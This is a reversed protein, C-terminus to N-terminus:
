PAVAIRADLWDVATRLEGSSLPHPEAPLVQVKELTVPVEEGRLALLIASVPLGHTVLLIAEEPRALLKRYGAVYRRMAEVRSEGGGPIPTDVGNARQWARFDDVHRGEFEGVRVDDFEPMVFTPVDRGELAVAATEQTRPFRSTVALNVARDRLWDGLSRAEARGKDTLQVVVGPDGNIVDRASYESEAHRALIAVEM